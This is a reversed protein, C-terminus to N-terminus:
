FSHASVYVCMCMYVYIFLSLTLQETMYLKAVGHVTVQWAGGDMPNELCSCQLPNVNGGGSSRGSGSISGLWLPRRYRRSEKGSTGGPLGM